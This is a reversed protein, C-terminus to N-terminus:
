YHKGGKGINGNYERWDFTASDGEEYFVTYEFYRNINGLSSLSRKGEFDSGKNRSEKNQASKIHSITNTLGQIDIEKM